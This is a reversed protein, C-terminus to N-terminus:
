GVVGRGKRVGMGGKRGIGHIEDWESDVYMRLM